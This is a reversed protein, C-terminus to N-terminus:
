TIGKLAKRLGRIAECGDCGCAESHILSGDIDICELVSEAATRVAELREIYDAAEVVCRKIIADTIFGSQHLLLAAHDTM